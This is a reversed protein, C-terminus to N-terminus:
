ILSITAVGYYMTGAIDYKDTKVWYDVQWGNTDMENFDGLVSALISPYVGTLKVSDVGEESLKSVESEIYAKIKEEM